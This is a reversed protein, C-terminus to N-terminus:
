RIAGLDMGLDSEPIAVKYERTEHTCSPAGASNSLIPREIVGHQRNARESIGNAATRGRERAKKHIDRNTEMAVGLQHLLILRNLAGM